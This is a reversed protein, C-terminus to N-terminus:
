RTRVVQTRALLDHLGQRRPHFLPMVVSVLLLAMGYPLFLLGTWVLARVLARVPGPRQAGREPFRADGTAAPVVRIGTLAQGPTRGALAWSLLLYVLTVAALVMTLATLLGTTMGYQELVAPTYARTRGAQADAYMAHWLRVLGNLFTRTWQLGALGGIVTVLVTDVLGALARRWWGSLRAGTTPALHGAPAAAPHATGGAASWASAAPSDNAAVPRTGADHATWPDAGGAAAKVPRTNHTWQTGDWYRERTPDAPDPYWEM